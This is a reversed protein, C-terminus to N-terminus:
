KRVKGRIKLLQMVKWYCGWVSCPGQFTGASVPKRRLLAAVCLLMIIHAFRTMSTLM